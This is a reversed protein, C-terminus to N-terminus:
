ERAEKMGTGGRRWLRVPKKIPKEVPQQFVEVEVALALVV